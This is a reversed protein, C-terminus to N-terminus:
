YEEEGISTLAEEDLEFAPAGEVRAVDIEGFVQSQSV